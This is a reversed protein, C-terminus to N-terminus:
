CALDFWALCLVFYFVNNQIQIKVKRSREVVDVRLVM